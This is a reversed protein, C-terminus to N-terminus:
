QSAWYPFLEPTACCLCFQLNPPGGIIGEATNTRGGAGRTGCGTGTRDAAGAGHATAAAHGGGGGGGGGGVCGGGGVVGCVGCVGCRTGLTTGGGLLQLRIKEWM